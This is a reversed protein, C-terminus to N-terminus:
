MRCAPPARGLFPELCLRNLDHIQTTQLVSRYALALFGISKNVFAPLMHHSTDNGNLHKRASDMTRYYDHHNAPISSGSEPALNFERYTNIATPNGSVSRDPDQTHFLGLFPFLLTLMVGVVLYVRRATGNGIAM